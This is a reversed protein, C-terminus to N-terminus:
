DEPGFEPERALAAFAKKVSNDGSNRFTLVNGIRSLLKLLTKTVAISSHLSVSVLAARIFSLM